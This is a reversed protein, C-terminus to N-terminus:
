GASTFYPKQLIERTRQGIRRVHIQTAVKENGNDVFVPCERVQLLRRVGLSAYLAVDKVELLIKISHCRMQRRDEGHVCVRGDKREQIPFVSLHSAM